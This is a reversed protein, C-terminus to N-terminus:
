VLIVDNELNRRMVSGEPYMKNFKIKSRVYYPVSRLKTHMIHSYGNENGLRYPVEHHGVPIFAFLLFILLPIVSVFLQWTSAQQQEQQQGSRRAYRQRQYLGPGFNTTYM